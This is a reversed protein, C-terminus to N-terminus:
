RIRHSTLVSQRGAKEWTSDQSKISIIKHDKGLIADVAAAIVAVTAPPIAGAVHPQDAAPAAAPALAAAAPMFRHVLFATLECVGWLVALTIMVMLMGTLHPMASWFTEVSTAALIPPLSM